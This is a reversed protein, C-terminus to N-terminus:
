VSDLFRKTYYLAAGMPAAHRPYRSLHLFGGDPAFPDLDHLQDRLQPLYPELYKAMFGGIVVDCDLAMHINHAGIALHYLYDRLLLQMAHDGAAARAFFVDATGAAAALRSASCYAELCGRKGCRCKLGGPEICMHGFEGSRNNDGPYPVGGTLVTGGVGYELSLYAFSRGPPSALLEAFGGCTADNDMRTPYRIARLLSARPIHYLDLTPAFIVTQEDRSIVGPLSVGVGLLRARDAGSEDLFAELSSALFEAYDADHLDRDHRVSRYHLENGRLDALVFRLRKESVSVGAAVRADPVITLQQAPRGGSSPQTGAPGILGAQTLENLNQYVTPLSLELARAIQQKSCPADASYLYHYISSRTLRRRESIAEGGLAPDTM